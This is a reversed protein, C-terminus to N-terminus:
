KEYDSLKIDPQCVYGSTKRVNNISGIKIVGSPCCEACVGCETCEDSDIYYVPEDEMIAAVPCEDVCTGCCICDETIVYGM